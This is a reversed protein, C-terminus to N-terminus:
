CQAPMTAARGRAILVAVACSAIWLQNDLFLRCLYESRMRAPMRTGDANWAMLDNPYEREGILYSRVARSWVLDNSRLLQFAGAMQRSDLYGRASM